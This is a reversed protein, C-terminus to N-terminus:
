PAPDKGAPLVSSAHRATPSHDALVEDAVRHRDAICENVAVGHFGAGALVLGLRRARHALEERRALHGVTYQPIAAPWRVLRLIRPAATVGLARRLDATIAATVTDDPARVIEPDRAGGYILRLLVRGAPARNPWVTSEFVCGLCRLAEHRAALFGFGDLRHPVEGRRLAVHAVLAPVTEIEGLRVSLADDHAAVLPAIAAPPLALVVRDALVEDTTTQVRWGRGERHLATVRVGPRFAGGLRFALAQPIANMGLEPAVLGKAVAGRQALLGRVLSGHDREMAALRPLCAALSLREIDGAFVGTLFPDLLAETAERGLRRRGFAGITEDTARGRPQLPETLLRLKGRWSLLQTGLLSPPSRPVELLAGDRWVWRQKAAPSAALMSVGLERALTAAGDDAALVASAAHECLHGDILETTLKGGPQANAELVTVDAVGRQRLEHAAALGAIGGGVVVVRM